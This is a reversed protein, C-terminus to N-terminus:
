SNCISVSLLESTPHRVNTRPRLQRGMENGTSEEQRNPTTSSNKPLQTECEPDKMNSVLFDYLHTPADSAPYDRIIEPLLAILENITQTSLTTWIDATPSMRNVPLYDTSNRTPERLRDILYEAGVVSSVRHNHRRKKIASHIPGLRSSEGKSRSSDKM